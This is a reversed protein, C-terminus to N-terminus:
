FTGFAAFLLRLPNEGGEAGRRRALGADAAGGSAGGVSPLEGRLFKLGIRITALKVTLRAM